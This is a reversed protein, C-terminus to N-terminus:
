IFSHKAVMNAHTPNCLYFSVSFSFAIICVGKTKEDAPPDYSAGTLIMFESLARKVLDQSKDKTKEFTDKLYDYLVPSEKRQEDTIDEIDTSTEM